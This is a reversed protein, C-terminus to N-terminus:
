GEIPDFPKGAALDYIVAQGELKLMRKGLRPFDAVEFDDQQSPAATTAAPGTHRAVLLNQGLSRRKTRRPALLV